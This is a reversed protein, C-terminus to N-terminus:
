LINIIFDNSTIDFVNCGNVNIDHDSNQYPYKMFFNTTTESILDHQNNQYLYDKPSM